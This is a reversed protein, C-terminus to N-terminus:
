SVGHLGSGAGSGRREANRGPRRMQSRHHRHKPVQELKGLRVGVLRIKMILAIHDLCQLAARAVPAAASSARRLTVQRTLTEFDAFRLKTTVTRGRYGKNKAKAAVDRALRKVMRAIADRGGVDQQFTIQRSFSRPEWATILPTEDVGRAADHLYRGHAPGFRATLMDVPLAALEGITRAGMAALAAETKPGVGLLKRAPLPWITEEIDAETLVTIGGPKRMDSAIKALLKNPAVGISCTLGTEAHVREMISRAITQSDGVAATLDLYAEDIGSEEVTASFGRLV